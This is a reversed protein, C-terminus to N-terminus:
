EHRPAGLPSLPTSAACPAEDIRARLLRGRVGDLAGPKLSLGLIRATNVPGPFQITGGALKQFGAKGYYPEDGVLIVWAHERQRAEALTLRMLEQGAGQGRIEPAVALPGLMLGQHKEVAVPWYQISAVVAGDRLAVFSLGDVPHVGERLRYASKAFRGPGFCLAVLAEAAASDNPQCQRYVFTM